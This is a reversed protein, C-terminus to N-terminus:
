FHTTMRLVKTLFALVNLRYEGSLIKQIHAHIKINVDLLNVIPAVTSLVDDSEIYAFTKACLKFLTLFDAEEM